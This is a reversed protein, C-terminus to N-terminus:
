LKMGKRTDFYDMEVSLNYPIENPLNDMLAARVNDIILTEAPQDTFVGREYEWPKVISQSM